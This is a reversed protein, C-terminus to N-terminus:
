LNLKHVYNRVSIPGSGFVLFVILLFLVLVALEFSQNGMMLAKEGKILFAAGILIPIQFLAGMRTYFGVAILAGGIMHALAVYSIWVFSKDEGVMELIAGPDSFILLGRVFLIVGLFIRILAFGTNLKADLNYFFQNFKKM